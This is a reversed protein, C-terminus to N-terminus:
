GGYSVPLIFMLFASAAFVGRFWAFSIILGDIKGTQKDLDTVARSLVATNTTLEKHVELMTQHLHMPDTTGRQAFEPTTQAYSTPTSEEAAGRSKTTKAM